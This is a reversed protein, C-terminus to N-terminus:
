RPLLGHIKRGSLLKYLLYVPHTFISWFCQFLIAPNSGYRNTTHRISLIADKYKGHLLSFGISGAYQRFNLKIREHYKERAKAFDETLIIEICQSLKQVSCDTMEIISNTGLGHFEHDHVFSAYMCLESSLVQVMPLPKAWDSTCLWSIGSSCGILLTCYKSLEANERFSLVSGDIIREDTSHLCENSSLIVCLGPINGILKKSVELAFNPTVFSQGSKPSCEFLIVHKRDKLSHSTSFRRVNEVEAPSLRIVPAVPVTIPKNYSRLISSRTTGDFNKLNNPFVQTLYIEDFDGRNKRKIAEEEFQQWRTIIEITASIPIEWIEDVFPNGELISRYISGIAWTIHCDPYDTKIQRAITTAYLCDGYSGLQGILFRKQGSIGGSEFAPGTM